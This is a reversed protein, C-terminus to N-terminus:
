GKETDRGLSTSSCQEETISGCYNCKVTHRRDKQERREEEQGAAARTIAWLCAECIKNETGDDTQCWPCWV